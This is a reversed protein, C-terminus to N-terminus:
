VDFDFEVYDIDLNDVFDWIDGYTLPEEGFEVQGTIDTQKVTLTKPNVLTTIGTERSVIKISNDANFYIEDGDATYVTAGNYASFSDFLEQLSEEYVVRGESDYERYTFTSAEIEEYSGDDYTCVQNGASDNTIACEAIDEDVNIGGVFEVIFQIDYTFPSVATTTGDAETATV